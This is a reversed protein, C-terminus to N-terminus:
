WEAMEAGVILTYFLLYGKIKITTTAKPVELLPQFDRQPRWGHGIWLSKTQKCLEIVCGNHRNQENMGNPAHGLHQYSPIAFNKPKWFSILSINTDRSTKM